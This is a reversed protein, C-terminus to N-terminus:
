DDVNLKIKTLVCVLIGKRRRMPMRLVLKIVLAVTLQVKQFYMVNNFNQEERFNYNWGAAGM